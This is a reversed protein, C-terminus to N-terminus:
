SSFLTNTLTQLPNDRSMFYKIEQSNVVQLCM